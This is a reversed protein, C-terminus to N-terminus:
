RSGRESATAPCTDQYPLGPIYRVWEARDLGGGTVACARQTAHDRLKNLQALDWLIVKADSGGTALMDGDPALAVATVSGAHGTLPQGLPRPQTRDTLDWLIVGGEDDATVLTHGDASFAASTVLSHHGSLPQGLARPRTRDNLDWLVVGGNEGATVQTRRDPAVALSDVVHNARPHSQTPRPRDPDTVDRVIVTGDSTTTTLTRGDPAFAVSDVPSPQGTLPQGRRQPQARATLDWLVVTGDSGATALAHGKPAFAVATVRGTHSTLAPRLPQPRALDTLDWLLTSGDDSTTALTRGDPAFAVATVKGTHSSPTPRLRQPRTLDTLDWLTATGDDSATALTRGDPAFAVSNVSSTHGALSHQPRTSDALNWLLVTGDDNATALARGDPSFAVSFVSGARGTQSSRLQQPRAPDALDWVIVIGASDGAAVTHGDPSFAVSFVSGARPVLFQRLRTLDALDWLIVRGDFSGTALTRGDPSFAVSSVSGAHAALVHRLRAPDALDWVIVTGASDGAAVIRGDPSFAVSSVPNTRDFLTGAYRTTTLINVLSAQAEGGPGIREAAMGLLLATRPDTERVADAQTILQHVTAIRQQHLAIRQQHFAVVAAGSAVLVLVSLVVLTTRRLRAARREQRTSTTLFASAVPSLDSEPPRSTAWNLAEELRNGRYLGATDRGGRDWVTATEDLHQRILNGARDTDIWQRLRPWAHLLAEHTIEVTDQDQTLLRAQTFARLVPVATDPDLGLLLDTCALHRRTDETGDGIKILRLFLTRAAHQGPPDLGTFLDEATRAVARHIGGASQYGDVTLTHGHRQQWTVRLAHALLPLRGAVYGARGNDRATTTHGLDRLLLELLGPEVDLGVDQAPYLIAARLETDSMPGVVLPKDQLATRLHPDNVCAAYFDARVGVVVLGLPQTDANGNSRPSALQFLLEIFTRRHQDDTCLTFLEEFQDVVVVVRAKPDDGGLRGCLAECLAAGALASNVVLKQALTAPDAGTLSGIQTALAALPHVTPTLVLKPWRSSGPLADSDLRPLLGAQLLSSKGAGSPAVVVQVGGTSLRADLRTILDATLENRGFFWKAQKRGFSALGPYPCEVAQGRPEARCAGCVGDHYRIVVDRGGQYVRAEGSAQAELHVSNGAPQPAPLEPPPEM